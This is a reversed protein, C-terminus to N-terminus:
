IIRSRLLTDELPQSDMKDIRSEEKKRYQFNTANIVARLREYTMPEVYLDDLSRVRSIAVYALGAVAEKTGIDVIAKNITLGQSKHITISWVLKLPLQLREFNGTSNSTSLLPTIPVLKDRSTQFSPGSYNEFQVIVAIPSTPPQQDHKFIIDKVVGM